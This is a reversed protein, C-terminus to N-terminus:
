NKSCTPAEGSWERTELCTRTAEGELAFGSDCDYSATSKYTTAPVTLTGNIPPM